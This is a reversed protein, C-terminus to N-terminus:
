PMRLRYFVKPAAPNVSIQLKTDNQSDAIDFWAASNAVDVSNSQAVWGKHSEPWNISLSGSGFSFSITTPENAMGKISFVGTAPDFQGELTDDQFIVQSFSGSRNLVNFLKFSDGPALTGALNVITLTGGYNITSAVVVDNTGAEKSIEMYTASAPGLNLTNNVTLRGLGAAGPSLTAGDAITVAGNIIGTGELTGSNLAVAGSGTASGEINAVRLFGGNVITGGTYTNAATITLRADGAKTLAMTGDLSGPGNISYAATYNNFAVSAPRLIGSTVLATNAGTDDFSVSDGQGFTTYTTDVWNQAVFNWNPGEIGTWTLAAGTAATVQLYLTSQTTNNVISATVGSPLRMPITDLTGSISTYKVLPYLGPAFNGGYIKVYANGYVTLNAAQIVPTASGGNPLYFALTATDGLTLNPMALTPSATDVAVGLTKGADVLFDGGGSHRTSVVLAGDAVMTLGSYTNAGTLYLTGLELKTLGAGPDGSIVGSITQNVECSLARTGNGLSVPGALDLSQDEGSANRGFTFNGNIVVPNTLTLRTWGLLATGDEITFTGYGLVTPQFGIRLRGSKLHVGGEFTNLGYLTCRLTSSSMEIRLAGPGEIPAATAVSRGGFAGGNETIWIGRERTLTTAYNQIWLDGGDFVLNSYTLTSPIQGLSDISTTNNLSLRGEKIITIGTYPQAGTIRLEGPGTKVLGVGPAGSIEGTIANTHRVDITRTADGFDMPGSLTLISRDATNLSGIRINGKVFIRNTLTRATTSWPLISTNDEMVLDGPGLQSWVPSRSGIRLGGEKLWTGGTYFNTDLFLTEPGTKILMGPGDFIGYIGSWATAHITGGASTLYFGRNRNLVNGTNLSLTGGDLTIYDAVFGAPVAGIATERDVRIAGNKITLGGTFTNANTLALMGEGTKIIRRPGGSESIVGGITLTKSTDVALNGALVVPAYVLDAENGSISVLQADAAGNDLTLPSGASYVMFPHAGDLSGVQLKGVSVPVDVSVIRPATINNTIVAAAGPADPVGIPLWNEATIWSGDADPVWSSLSASQASMTLGLILAALVPARRFSSTTMNDRM